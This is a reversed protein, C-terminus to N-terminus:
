PAATRFMIAKVKQNSLHPFFPNMLRDVQDLQASISKNVALAFSNKLLRAM